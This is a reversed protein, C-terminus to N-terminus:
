GSKLKGALHGLAVYAMGYVFISGATLIPSISPVILVAAFGIILLGTSIILFWSSPRHMKWLAVAFVVAAVYILGVGSFDVALYQLAITQYLNIGLADGKAADPVAFAWQSLSALTAVAELINGFVFLRGAVIATNPRRTYLRLSLMLVVPLILVVSLFVSIVYLLNAGRHDSLHAAMAIVSGATSNPPQWFYFTVGAVALFFGAISALILTLKSSM